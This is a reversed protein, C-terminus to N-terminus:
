QLVNFIYLTVNVIPDDAVVVLGWVVSLLDLLLSYINSNNNLM